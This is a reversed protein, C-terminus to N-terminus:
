LYKSLDIIHKEAPIKGILGSNDRSGHLFYKNNNKSSIM